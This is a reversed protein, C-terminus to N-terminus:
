QIGLEAMAREVMRTAQKIKRSDFKQKELAEALGDLPSVYQVSDAGEPKDASKAEKVRPASVINPYDTMINKPVIIGPAVHLKYFVHEGSELTEWDQQKEINKEVLRFEPRNDVFKSSVKLRGELYSAKFEVFGNRGSEGFTKPYPAGNYYLRQKKLHQPTHIHGSFVFDSSRRNIVLKATKLPQGYDGIAGPEEAHAFILTARERQGKKLGNFPFPVFGCDVGDITVVTPERYITFNPLAGTVIFVELLDVATKGVHAFDHNGLIYHFHLTKKFRSIFTVLKILTSDDLRAKDSLDGPIFIHKIARDMAYKCIKEIEYLQKDDANNPFLRALGGSLHWDSTSIGHLSMILGKSLIFPITTEWCGKNVSDM